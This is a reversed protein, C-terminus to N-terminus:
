RDERGDRQGDPVRAAASRRRALAEVAPRLFGAAMLLVLGLPGLWWRHAAAAVLALAAFGAGLGAAGWPGGPLRRPTGGRSLVVGLALAAAFLLTWPDLVVGALGLALAGVLLTGLAAAGAWAAHPVVRGVALGGVAVIAGVAFYNLTVVDM